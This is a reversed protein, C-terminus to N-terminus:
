SIQGASLVSFAMPSEWSNYMGPPTFSGVIPFPFFSTTEIELEGITPICGIYYNEVVSRETISSSIPDNEM